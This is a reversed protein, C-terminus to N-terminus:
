TWLRLWEVARHRLQIIFLLCEKWAATITRFNVKAKHYHRIRVLQPSRSSTTWSCVAKVLCSTAEPLWCKNSPATWQDVASTKSAILNIKPRIAREQWMVWHIGTARSNIPMRRSTSSEKPCCSRRIPTQLNASKLCALVLITIVRVTLNCAAGQTIRSHRTIAGVQSIRTQPQCLM